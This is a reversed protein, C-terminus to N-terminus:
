DHVDAGKSAPAVQTEDAVVLLYGTELLSRADLGFARLKLRMRSIVNRLPRLEDEWIGAFQAERLRERAREVAQETVTSNYFSAFLEEYPCYDPANELIPLLVRFEQFTFLEQRIVTPKQEQDTALQSVLGLRTNAALRQGTPLLGPLDYYSIQDESLRPLPHGKRNTSM